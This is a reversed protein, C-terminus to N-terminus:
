RLPVLQPARVWVHEMALSFVLALGAMPIMWFGQPLGPRLLVILLLPLVIGLLVGSWFPLRLSGRTMLPYALRPDAAVPVITLEALLLRGSPHQAPAVRALGARGSPAAGITRRARALASNSRPGGSPTRRM